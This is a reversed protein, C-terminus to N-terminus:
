RITAVTRVNRRKKWKLGVGDLLLRLDAAPARAEDRGRPRRGLRYATLCEKDM